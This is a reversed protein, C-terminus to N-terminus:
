YKKAIRAALANNNGGAPHGVADALQQWTPKGFRKTNYEQKLWLSLMMTLYDDDDADINGVFPYNRLKESDLRLALGIRKWM